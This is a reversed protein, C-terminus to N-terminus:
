ATGAAAEIIERLHADHDRAALRGTIQVRAREDRLDQPALRGGDQEGGLQHGPV